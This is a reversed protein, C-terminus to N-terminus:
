DPAVSDAPWRSGPRHYVQVDALVRVVVVAHPAREVVRVVGDDGSGGSLVPPPRTQQPDDHVHIWARAAAPHGAARTTRRTARDRPLHHHPGERPPPYTANITRRTGLKGSGSLPFEQCLRNQCASRRAPDPSGVGVYCLCHRDYAANRDFCLVPTFSWYYRSLLLSMKPRNARHRFFKKDKTQTTARLKSMPNVTTVAPPAAIASASAILSLSLRTVSAWHDVQVVEHKLLLALPTRLIAIVGLVLFFRLRDQRRNLHGSKPEMGVMMGVGLLNGSGSTRSDRGDSLM